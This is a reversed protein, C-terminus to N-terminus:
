LIGILDAVTDIIRIDKDVAAWDEKTYRTLVGIFGAGSDRACLYDIKNDGLYLIDEAEVGLADALYFMAKPSPKAEEEGHDDRCVLADLEGIVGSVTLARVAYERGGRTLVGIRYGKGKLYGIMKEAGEYPRAEEVNEMELDRTEKQIRNMVDPIDASRGNKKLYNIGADLNFKSSETLFLVHEPVRADIMADYVLRRLRDYKLYTRLLTGDMDFGIARYRKGEPM